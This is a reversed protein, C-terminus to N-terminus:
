MCVNHIVWARYYVLNIILDYMASRAAPKRVQFLQVSCDVRSLTKESLRLPQVKRSLRGVSGVRFRSAQSRPETM